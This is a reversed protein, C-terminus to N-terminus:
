IASSKLPAEGYNPVGGVYTTSGSYVGLDDPCDDAAETGPCQQGAPSLPDCSAVVGASDGTWAWTAGGDKSYFHTASQYNRTRNGPPAQGMCPGRPCYQMFLHLYGTKADRFPGNPDNVHGAPPRIHFVPFYPQAAPQDASPEGSSSACLLAASLVPFLRLSAPM